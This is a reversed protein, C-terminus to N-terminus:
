LIISLIHGLSPKRSFQNSKFKMRTFGVLHELKVTRRRTLKEEWIFELGVGLLWVVENDMVHKMFMLNLFEYNSTAACDDPLLSLIRQRSWGWADRVMICETFMHTIDERVNCLVCNPSDVMHIKM